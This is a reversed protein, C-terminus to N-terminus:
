GEVFQKMLVLFSEADLGSYGLVVVVKRIEFLAVILHLLPFYNLRGKLHILCLWCRDVVESKVGVM